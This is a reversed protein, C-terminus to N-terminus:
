SREAVFKRVAEGHIATDLKTELVREAVGMALTTVKARLQGKATRKEAAIDTRAKEVEQRAEAEAKAVTAQAESLTDKMVVQIRAYTEQEATTLRDDYEKKLRAAETRDREVDAQTSALEAERRTVYTMVRGFLIRGLVLFTIVFVVVQTGLVKLNIGLDDLLGAALFCGRQRIREYAKLGEDILDDWVEGMTWGHKKAIEQVQQWVEERVKLSVQRRVTRVKGQILREVGM